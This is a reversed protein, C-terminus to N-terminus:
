ERSITNKNIIKKLKFYNQAFNLEKEASFGIEMPVRHLNRSFSDIKLGATGFTLKLNENKLFLEDFFAKKVGFDTFPFAFCDSLYENESMYDLSKQANEIQLNLSLENFLPHNWSHAAIGFGQTKVDDLDEKQLYIKNKSAYTTFDINLIQAIEDLQYQNQFNISAMNKNFETKSVNKLKFYSLLTPSIKFNDNKIEDILLSAKFRFMIDNNGIFAPNIFNIAYIGKRILIPLVVNKFEILGDDFTLLAIPKSHKKNYNEKFYDWDVFKFKKSLYDLDAEFANTTKYNVVNKIHPLDEDSVCHYVPVIYNLPFGTKLGCFSNAKKLLSKLM